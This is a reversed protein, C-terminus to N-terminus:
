TGFSFCSLIYCFFICYITVSYYSSLRINVIRYLLINVSHTPVSYLEPMSHICKLGIGVLRGGGGGGGSETYSVYNERFCVSYINDPSM